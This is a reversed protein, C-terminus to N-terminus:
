PQGHIGFSLALGQSPSNVYYPLNWARAPLTSMTLSIQVFQTLLVKGTKMNLSAVVFIPSQSPVLSSREEKIIIGVHLNTSFNRRIDSYLILWDDLYM